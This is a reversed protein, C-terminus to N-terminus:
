VMKRIEDLLNKVNDPRSGYMREIKAASTIKRGIMASAADNLAFSDWLEQIERIRTCASAQALFLDIPADNGQEQYSRRIEEMAQQQAELELRKQEAREQEQRQAQEQLAKKREAVIAPSVVCAPVKEALRVLEQLYKEQPPTNYKYSEIRDVIYDHICEMMENSIGTATEDYTFTNESFMNSSQNNMQVSGTELQLYGITLRSPKFQIGKVDIYFVTKQGDLANSTMLSGLSVDTTIVCKNDYVAIRRGRSGNLKCILVSM